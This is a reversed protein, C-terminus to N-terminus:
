LFDKIESCVFRRNEMLSVVSERLQGRTSGPTIIGGSGNIMLRRMLAYNLLPLLNLIKTDPYNTHYVLTQHALDRDSRSNGIIAIDPTLTEGPMPCKAVSECTYIGPFRGDRELIRTLGKRIIKQDYIISIGITEM